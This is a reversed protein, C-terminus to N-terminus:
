KGRPYLIKDVYVNLGDMLKVKKENNCYGCNYGSIIHDKNSISKCIPCRM